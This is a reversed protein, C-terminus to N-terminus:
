RRHAAAAVRKAQEVYRPSVGMLKAAADRARGSIGANIGANKPPRGKTRERELLPLVELTLAARQSAALANPKPYRPVWLSLRPQTSRRRSM